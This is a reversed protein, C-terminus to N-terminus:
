FGNVLQNCGGILCRIVKQKAHSCTSLPRSYKTLLFCSFGAQNLSCSTKFGLAISITFFYPKDTVETMFSETASESKLSILIENIVLTLQFLFYGGVEPRLSGFIAKSTAM